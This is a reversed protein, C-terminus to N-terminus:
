NVRCLELEERVRAFVGVWDGPQNQRFLRMTPYWPSDERELMWRWDPSYCLLTWVSKGLAGALHAVATDVAIVLDLQQIFEATDAFTNLNASLDQLQLKPPLQALEKTQEGKQLSYFAINELELVPLFDMLHCSRNKDNAQTLSGGWVIGVKLKPEQLSAISPLSKVPLKEAQIYPVKHSIEELTIGLVHPLSMLPIYYDFASVSIDGATRLEDIEPITALLPMLEPTSVLILKGCRERALPVFRIFQIADGSGQETHILLTKEPIESGDWKPQPCNLPHFQETQWRWECEAWGQSYDGMQLLTMGLNHHAQAFDPRIKVAQQYCHLAELSQRQKSYVYGLSNYADAHAAEAAVVQQLQLIAEDYQETDGLVVGLNYRAPLFDSQVELAQSFAAIADSWKGQYYLENGREYHAQASEVTVPPQVAQALAEDPLVYSGAQLAEDWDIIEPFRIGPLVSVAFIEQVAAEFKLFALTEGTQINVVWVGCIRDSLSQTLPIGSFVASERVQSLGIFALDGWFDIGRTFGPLQAVTHVEGKDLDVWALSGRGSEIADRFSNHPKGQQSDNTM